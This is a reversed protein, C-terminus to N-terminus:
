YNTYAMTDRWGVDSSSLGTDELVISICERPFCQWYTYRGSVENPTFSRPKLGWTYAALDIDDLIGYDNTLLPYPYRQKALVSVASADFPFVLWIVLIFIIGKKVENGRCFVM